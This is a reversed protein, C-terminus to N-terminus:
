KTQLFTTLSRLSVEFAEMEIPSGVGNDAIFWYPMQLIRGREGPEAMCPVLPFEDLIHQRFLLQSQVALDCAYIAAGDTLTKPLKRRRFPVFQEDALLSRCFDRDAQLISSNEREIFKLVTSEIQSNPKDSSEFCILFLGPAAHTGPSRLLSNVMLPYAMVPVASEAFELATQMTPSVPSSRCWKLFLKIALPILVITSILAVLLGFFLITSESSKENSAVHRVADLYRDKLAVLDVTTKEIANLHRRALHLASKVFAVIKAAGGGGGKNSIAACIGQSPSYEVYHGGIVRVIMAIVIMMAM